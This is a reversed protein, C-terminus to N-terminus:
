GNATGLWWELQPFIHPIILDYIISLIALILWSISIFWFLVPNEDRYVTQVVFAQGMVIAAIAWYLFFLGWVWYWGVATAGLLALLAIVTPLKTRGLPALLSYIARAM